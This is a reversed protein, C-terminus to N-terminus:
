KKANLKEYSPVDISTHLTGVEGTVINKVAIALRYTGPAIAVNFQCDPQCQASDRRGDLSVRREFTEVVWGSPKSIRGFAKFGTLL